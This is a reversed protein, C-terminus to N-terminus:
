RAEAMAQNVLDITLDDTWRGRKVVASPYRRRPDEDAHAYVTDRPGAFAWYWDNGSAIRRNGEREYFLVLGLVGDDPLATWDDLTRGDHVSGDDFWIRWREVRLSKEPPCDLCDGM